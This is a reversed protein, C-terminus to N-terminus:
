DFYEYPQILMNGLDGLISPSVSVFPGTFLNSSQDDFHNRRQVSTWPDEKLGQNLWRLIPDHQESGLQHLPLTSHEASKEPTDRSNSHYQNDVPADARKSDQFNRKNSSPSTPSPSPCTETAVATADQRPLIFLDEMHASFTNNPRDLVTDLYRQMM